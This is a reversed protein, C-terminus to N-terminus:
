AAAARGEYAELVERPIRGRDGLDPWGNARAWSRIAANDGFTGRDGSRARRRVPEYRAQLARGIQMAWSVGEELEREHEACLEVEAAAGDLSVTVTRADAIGCDNVDCIFLVEVKQGM